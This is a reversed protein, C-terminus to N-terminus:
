TSSYAGLFSSDLRKTNLHCARVANQIGFYNLLRCSTALRTKYMPISNRNNQFGIKINSRAITTARMGNANRHATSEQDAAGGVITALSQYFIHQLLQFPPKLQTQFGGSIEESM